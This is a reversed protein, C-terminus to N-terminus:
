LTQIMWKVAENKKYLQTGIANVSYKKLIEFFIKSYKAKSAAVRNNKVINELEEKMMKLVNEIDKTDKEVYSAAVVARAYADVSNVADRQLKGTSIQKRGQLAYDLFVIGREIANKDRENLKQSKSLIHCIRDALFGSELNDGLESFLFNNMMM